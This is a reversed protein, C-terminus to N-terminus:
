KLWAKQPISQGVADLVSVPTNRTGLLERVGNLRENVLRKQQEYSELEKEFPSYKVIEANVAEINEKLKQMQKQNQTVVYSRYQSFFLHPLMAIAAGVGVVALSRADSLIELVGPPIKLKTALGHLEKPLGASSASKEEADKSLDIRIMQ